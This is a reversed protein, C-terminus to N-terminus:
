RQNTENREGVDAVIQGQAQLNWLPWLQAGNVDLRIERDRAFVAADLVHQIIWDILRAHIGQKWM